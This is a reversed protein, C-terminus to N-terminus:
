FFCFCFFSLFSGPDKSIPGTELAINRPHSSAPTPLFSGKLERRVREGLELSPLISLPRPHPNPPLALLPVASGVAWPWALPSPLCGPFLSHPRTTEPGMGCASCGLGSHAFLRAEGLGQCLGPSRACSGTLRASSGCGGLGPWSFEPIELTPGTWDETSPGWALAICPSFLARSCTGPHEKGPGEGQVALWNLAQQCPAQSCQADRRKPRPAWLGWVCTAIISSSPTPFPSRFPLPGAEWGLAVMCFVGTDPWELDIIPHSLGLLWPCVGVRLSEDPGPWCVWLRSCRLGVGLTQWTLM